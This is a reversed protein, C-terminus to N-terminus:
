RCLLEDFDRDGSLCLDLDLDGMLLPWTLLLVPIWFDFLWLDGEGLCLLYKLSDGGVFDLLDGEGLRSLCCLCDGGAFDLLDGEGLLSLCCLCDGGAFDLLDGEGLLSLCWPSDAAV